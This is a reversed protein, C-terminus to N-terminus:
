FVLLVYVFLSFLNNEDLRQNDSHQQMLFDIYKDYSSPSTGGAALQSAAVMRQHQAAKFRLFEEHQEFGDFKSPSGVIAGTNADISDGHVFKCTAGNKCFGRAFYLCPKFGFGLGSEECVFSADNASYSRRHINHTNDGNNGSIWNQPGLNMELRPDVLDEGNSPENLFPFYENLQQEDVFDCDGGGGNNIVRPSFSSSCSGGLGVGVGQINNNDFSLLPNFKPSIPNKQFSPPPWVNSSPSSPNRSKTFPNTSNSTIRSIPNLPSPSSPTSLTMGLHTKVRVVLNHLVHDPCCALRVLEYEELNMLIYGMIKSANEPDFNKVKSLVVNTAEYSGM